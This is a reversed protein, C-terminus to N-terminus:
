TSKVTKGVSVSDKEIVERGYAYLVPCNLPTTENFDDAVVKRELRQEICYLCLHLPPKNLDIVTTTEPYEDREEQTLAELWVDDKLMFGYAYRECDKCDASRSIGGMAVKLVEMVTPGMQETLKRLQEQDLRKVQQYLSLGLGAGSAAAVSSNVFNSFRDRLKKLM